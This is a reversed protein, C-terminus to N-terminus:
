NVGAEVTPLGIEEELETTVDHMWDLRDRQYDDWESTTDTHDDLIPCIQCAAMAARLIPLPPLGYTRRLHEIWIADDEDWWQTDDLERLLWEAPYVGSPGGLDNIHTWGSARLGSADM